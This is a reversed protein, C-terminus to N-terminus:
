RTGLGYVIGALWAIAAFTGVALLINQVLSWFEDIWDDHPDECECTRGQNCNQNCTM